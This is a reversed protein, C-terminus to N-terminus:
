TGPPPPPTEAAPPAPPPAPQSPPPTKKFPNPTGPLLAREPSAKVERNRKVKELLQADIGQIKLEGVEGNRQVYEVSQLSAFIFWSTMGLATVSLLVVALTAARTVQKPDIKKAARKM